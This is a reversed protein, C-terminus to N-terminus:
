TEAGGALQAALSEIRSSLQDLGSAVTMAQAKVTKM